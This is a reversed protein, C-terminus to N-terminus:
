LYSILLVYLMICDAPKIGTAWLEPPGLSSITVSYPPFWVPYRASVTSDNASASFAARDNDSCSYQTIADLALAAADSLNESTANLWSVNRERRFHKCYFTYLSLNIFKETEQPLSPRLRFPNHKNKQRRLLRLFPKETHRNKKSPNALWPARWTALTNTHSCPVELVPAHLVCKPSLTLQSLAVIRILLAFEANEEKGERRNRRWCKSKIGAVLGAACGGIGASVANDFNGVNKAACETVTFIGGM